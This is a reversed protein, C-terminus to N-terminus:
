IIQKIPPQHYISCPTSLGVLVMEIVSLIQISNNALSSGLREDYSINNEGVLYPFLSKKNVSM